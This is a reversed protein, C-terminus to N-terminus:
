RCESLLNELADVAPGTKTYTLTAGVCSRVLRGVTRFWEVPRADRNFSHALLEHAIESQNKAVLGPAAGNRQLMVVHRLYLDGSAVGGGVEDPMVPSKFEDAIRTALSEDPLKLAERSELTLWLAKPYPIVRDTAPDIVLVEDSVYDFGRRICEAVITSKGARKDAPFAVVGDGRAVVGAHVLLHQSGLITAENVLVLTEILAEDWCAATLRAEGDREVSFGSDDHSISFTRSPPEASAPFHGMLGRISEGFSEETSRIRISTGLSDVTFDSPWTM